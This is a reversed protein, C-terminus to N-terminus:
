KPRNPQPEPTLRWNPPTPRIISRGPSAIEAFTASRDEAVPGSASFAIVITPPRLRLNASLSSTTGGRSIAIRRAGLGCTPSPEPSATPSRRPGNSPPLPPVRPPGGRRGECAPGAATEPRPDTEVAEIEAAQDDIAPPPGLIGLSDGGQEGAQFERAIPRDEDDDGRGRGAEVSGVFQGREASQGDTGWAIM